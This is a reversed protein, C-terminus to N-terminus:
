RRRRARMADYIWAHIGPHRSLYYGRPETKCTFYNMGGLSYAVSLRIRNTKEDMMRTDRAKSEDVGMVPVYCEIRM